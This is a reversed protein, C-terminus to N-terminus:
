SKFSAELTAKLRSESGKEVIWIVFEKCFVAFRIGKFEPSHINSKRVKEIDNDTLALSCIAYKENDLIEFFGVVEQKLASFTDDLTRTPFHVANSKHIEVCAKIISSLFECKKLYAEKTKVAEAFIDKYMGVLEMLFDYSLSKAIFEFGQVESLHGKDTLSSKGSNKLTSIFIFQVMQGFSMTEKKEAIKQLAAIENPAIECKEFCKILTCLRNALLCKDIFAAHIRGWTKQEHQFFDIIEFPRIIDKFLLLKVDEINCIDLKEQARRDWLSCIETWISFDETWFKNENYISEAEANLKKQSKDSKFARVKEPLIRIIINDDVQAIGKKADWWGCHLVCCKQNKSLLHTISNLLSTFYEAFDPDIIEKSQPRLDPSGKIENDEKSEHSSKVADFREDFDKSQSAKKEIEPKVEVKKEASPQIEDKKVEVPKVESKKEEIPKAIEEKVELDKKIPHEKMFGEVFKSILQILLLNRPFQHEFLKNPDYAIVEGSIPHTVEKKTEICKAVWQKLIKKEITHEGCMVPENMFVQGVPCVFEPNKEEITDFDAGHLILLARNDSPPISAAM